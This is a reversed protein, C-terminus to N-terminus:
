SIILPLFTIIKRSLLHEFAVLECRYNFVLDMIHNNIMVTEFNRKNKKYKSNKLKNLETIDVIEKYIITKNDKTHWDCVSLGIYNPNM